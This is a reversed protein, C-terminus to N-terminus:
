DPSNLYLKYYFQEEITIQFSNAVVIKILIFCNSYVTQIKWKKFM